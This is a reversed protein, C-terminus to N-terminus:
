CLTHFKDLLGKRPRNSLRCTDKLRMNTETNVNAPPSVTGLYVGVAVRVEESARVSHGARKELTERGYWVM